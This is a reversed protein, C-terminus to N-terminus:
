ELQNLQEIQRLRKRAHEEDISELAREFDAEAEDYVGAQFAAEARVMLMNPDAGYGSEALYECMQAAEESAGVRLFAEAAHILHGARIHQPVLSMALLRAARSDGLVVVNVGRDCWTGDVWFLSDSIARRYEEASREYDGLRLLAEGRILRRQVPSFQSEWRKTAVLAEEYRGARLLREAYVHPPQAGKKWPAYEEVPPPRRVGACGAALLTGVLAWFVTLSRTRGRTM